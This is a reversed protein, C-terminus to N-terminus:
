GHAGALEAAPPHGMEYRIKNIRQILPPHSYHLFVYLPHPTLNTLSKVSLKKLSSVLWEPSEATRVSYADAEFENKRSYANLAIALFFSVPEYLLGFFILAGYISIQKMFFADFLQANNLFLSFLFFLIGIHLLSVVMGKVIHRMQYHGVEHALVAVVEPVNNDEVLTDFLAIRKNRGFGTFFANAKTSRKSGDMVYIDKFSFKVSKAYDLIANRLDGEPLPVFKNFLPMIWIPALYQLLLMLVSTAVWCYIWANTGMFQFLWLVMGLLLGGVILQLIFGKILDLVFTRKTTKNFGFREEIVFTSYIAFPLSLIEGAITLLGIYFLGSVVPGFQWARVHEDLWNFGSGFWFAFFVALSLVSHILGFRTRVRTYEQSKRYKEADYLDSYGAPIEPSLSRLNLFEAFCDIAFKVLIATVIILRYVNM